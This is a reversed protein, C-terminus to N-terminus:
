VRRTASFASSRRVLRLTMVRIPIRLHAGVDQHSAQFGCWTAIINANAEECESTQVVGAVVENAVNLASVTDEVDITARAGKSNSGRLPALQAPSM